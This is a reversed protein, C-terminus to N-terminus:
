GPNERTKAFFKSLSGNAPIVSRGELWDDKKCIRSNRVESPIGFGEIVYVLVALIVVFGCGCSM